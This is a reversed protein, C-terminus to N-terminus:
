ALLDLRATYGEMEIRPLYGPEYGSYSMFGKLTNNDVKQPYLCQPCRSPYFEPRDFLSKTKLSLHGWFPTKMTVHAGQSTSVKVDMSSSRSELELMVDKAAQINVIRGTEVQVEVAGKKAVVNLARTVSVDKVSVDGSKALVEVREVLTKTATARDQLRVVVHGSYRSELQILEYDVMSRPFAIEVEVRTCNRNLAARIESAPMNLFLNAELLSTRPNPLTTLSIASLMQSTSGQATILITANTEARDRSQTVIIDGTMGEDLHFFFEQFEAPDFTYSMTTVEADEPIKCEYFLHDAIHFLAALLHASYRRFFMKLSWKKDDLWHQVRLGFGRGQTHDRRTSARAPIANRIAAAAAAGTAPSLASGSGSGSSSGSGLLPAREEEDVDQSKRGGKAGLHREPTSSYAPPPPLVTHSSPFEIDVTVAPVGGRGNNM